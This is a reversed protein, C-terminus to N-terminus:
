ALDVQRGWWVWGLLSKRYCLHSTFLKPKQAVYLKQQFEKNQKAAESFTFPM